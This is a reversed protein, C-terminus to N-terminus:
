GKDLSGAKFPGIFRLGLVLVLANLWPSEMEVDWGERLFGKELDRFLGIIVCCM